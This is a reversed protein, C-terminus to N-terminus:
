KPVGRPLAQPSALPVFDPPPEALVVELRAFDLLGPALSYHILPRLAGVSEGAPSQTLRVRVLAEAAELLDLRTGYPRVAERVSEVVATARALPGEPRLDHLELLRAMEPVTKAGPMLAAEEPLAAVARRGARHVLDIRQLVELARERVAEDPRALREVQRHIVERDGLLFEALREPSVRSVLGEGEM